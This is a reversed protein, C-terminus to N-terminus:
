FPQKGVLREIEGLLSFCDFPKKIFCDAPCYDPSCGSIMIVPTSFKSKVLEILNIGDMKPMEWDTILLNPLHNKGNMETWVESGDCFCFVQYDNELFIALGERIDKNDDVIFIQKKNM